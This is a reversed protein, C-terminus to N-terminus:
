PLEEWKPMCIRGLFMIFNTAKHKVLFIFEKNVKLESFAGDVVETRSAGAAEVGDENVTFTISQSIQSVMAQTNGTMGSLDAKGPTFLDKVGMKSFVDKMSYNMKVKFKPFSIKLDEERMNAPDICSQLKEPTLNTIIEDTSLRNGPVFIYMFMIDDYYPLQVVKMSPSPINAIKFRGRQTMMDVYISQDQCNWFVGRYTNRPNFPFKWRGQFSTTNLLILSTSQDLSQPPFFEKIDGNTKSEVWSNMNRRTEEVANRFDVKEFDSNYIEKVCKIYHELFDEAKSGYIRGGIKLMHYKSHQNLITLIRKFQSHFGGPIDCETGAHPGDTPTVTELGRWFHLAKRIEDATAKDSGLWLMGLAMTSGLSFTIFNKGSNEQQQRKFLDVAFMGNAQVFHKM